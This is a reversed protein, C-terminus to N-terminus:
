RHTNMRPISHWQFAFVRLNLQTFISLQVTTPLPCMGHAQLSLPHHLSNFIYIIRETQLRIVYKWRGEQEM